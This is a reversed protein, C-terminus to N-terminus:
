TTTSKVGRGYKSRGTSQVQIPLLPSWTATLWCSIMREGMVRYISALSSPPPEVPCHHPSNSYCRWERDGLAARLHAGLWPPGKPKDTSDHSLSCIPYLIFGVWVCTCAYTCHGLCGQPTFKLYNCKCSQCPVQKWGWVKIIEKM